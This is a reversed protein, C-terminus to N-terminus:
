GISTPWFKPWPAISTRRFKRAWKWPNTSRRRWRRIRSSRCRTSSRRRRPHAAGPLEQGQGGGEPAAMRTWRRLAHGGRLADSQRHRRHGDPGGADHQRRLVDRQLRRIRAKMQPNGEVEKIEDRIEQKSMRLDKLYRRHQRFMDVAGFVVFVAAAKWLLAQLSKTVAQAGAELEQFPLALYAALNQRAMAYVTMGALPLMIVAQLLAPINQRPLDKLRAFGNLRAFDPTLAKWSLGMRTTGLRVALSLVVLGGGALVLPLIAQEVATRVLVFASGATLEAQFAREVLLRMVRRMQAVWAGGGWALLMVFALFQLASVLEKAAPFRGEERAKEIRRPTPKETQQSKDAMRASWNRSCAGCAAPM